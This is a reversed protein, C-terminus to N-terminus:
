SYDGVIDAGDYENCESLSKLLIPITIDTWFISGDYLITVIRHTPTVTNCGLVFVLEGEPIVRKNLKGDYRNFVSVERLLRYPAKKPFGKM